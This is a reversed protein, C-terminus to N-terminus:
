VPDALLDDIRTESLGLVALTEAETLLVRAVIHDTGEWSRLVLAAMQQAEASPAYYALLTEMPQGVFHETKLAQLELIRTFDKEFGTVASLDVLHKQGPRSDPHRMYDAFATMSDAIMVHGFYRVYVLGRDPLIRFSLSMCGGSIVIGGALPMTKVM